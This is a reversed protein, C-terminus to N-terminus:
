DDPGACMLSPAVTKVWHQGTTGRMCVTHLRHTSFSWASWVLIFRLLVCQMRSRTLGDRSFFGTCLHPLSPYRFFVTSVVGAPPTASVDARVHVCGEALLLGCPAVFLELMGRPGSLRVPINKTRPRSDRIVIVIVCEFSAEVRTLRTRRVRISPDHRKYFSDSPVTLLRGVCSCADYFANVVRAPLSTSVDAGDHTCREELLLGCPAVFLQLM